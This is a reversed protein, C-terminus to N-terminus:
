RTINFIFAISQISVYLLLYLLENQFHKFSQVDSILMIFQLTSGLLSLLLANNVYWIYVIRYYGSQHMM